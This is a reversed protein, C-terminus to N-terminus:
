SLLFRFGLATILLGESILWTLTMLPRGIEILVARWWTARTKESLSDLFFRNVDCNQPPDITAALHIKVAACQTSKRVAFSRRTTEPISSNGSAGAGLPVLIEATLDMMM